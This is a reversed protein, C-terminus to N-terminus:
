RSGEIAAHSPLVYGDPEIEADRLAQLTTPAALENWEPPAIMLVGESIPMKRGPCRAPGRRRRHGSRLRDRRCGEGHHRYGRPRRWGPCPHRRLAGPPRHALDPKGDAAPLYGVFVSSLGAMEAELRFSEVLERGYITGDDILAYLEERWREILIEAVAAHEADGRPPSASLVALRDARAPRHALRTRIVPSFSRSPPRPWLTAPRGRRKRHCVFGVVVAVEREIFRAAAAKARNRAAPMTSWCGARRRQQRARRGRGHANQEGIIAYPGSLPAALGIM